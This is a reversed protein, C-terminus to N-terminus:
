KVNRLERDVNMELGFLILRLKLNNFYFQLVSCLVFLSSVMVHLRELRNLRISKDYDVFSSYFSLSFVVIRAQFDGSVQSSTERRRAFRHHEYAKRRHHEYAKRTSSQQRGAM